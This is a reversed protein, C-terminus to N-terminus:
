ICSLARASRVTVWRQSLVETLERGNAQRGLTVAGDDLLRWIPSRGDDGGLAPRVALLDDEDVWGCMGSTAATCTASSATACNPPADPQRQVRELIGVDYDRMYATNGHFVIAKDFV